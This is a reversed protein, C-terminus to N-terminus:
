TKVAPSCPCGNEVQYFSLFNYVNCFIAIKLIQESYLNYQKAPHHQYAFFINLNKLFYVCVYVTMRLDTCPIKVRAYM